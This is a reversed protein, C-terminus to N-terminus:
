CFGMLLNGMVFSSPSVGAFAKAGRGFGFFVRGSGEGDFFFPIM